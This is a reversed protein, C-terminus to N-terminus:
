EITPRKPGIFLRVNPGPPPPSLNSENWAFVRADWNPIRAIIFELGVKTFAETIFTALPGTIGEPKPVIIGFWVDTGTGGCLLVNWGAVQFAFAVQTAFNLSEVDGTLYEVSVSGPKARLATALRGIMDTSVTRWALQGKLKETELEATAARERTEEIAKNSEERLDTEVRSGRRGIGFEGAVGVIVLLGGFERLQEAHPRVLGAFPGPLFYTIEPLYEVILGLVVVATFFENWASLRDSWAELEKRIADKPIAKRLLREKPRM